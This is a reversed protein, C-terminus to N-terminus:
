ESIIAANNTAKRFRFKKLLEQLEPDIDCVSVNGAQLSVCLIYILHTLPVVNLTGGTVIWGVPPVKQINPSLSTGGNQCEPSQVRDKQTVTLDRIYTAGWYAIFNNIM